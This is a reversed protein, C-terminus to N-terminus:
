VVFWVGGVVPITGWLLGCVLAVVQRIWHLVDGLQDQALHIAFNNLAYFWWYLQVIINMQDLLPFIPNGM